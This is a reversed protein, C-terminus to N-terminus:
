CHDEYRVEIRVAGNVTSKFGGKEVKVTYAGPILDTIIYTGTSSTHSQKSVGTDNNVATVVADPVAARAVPM